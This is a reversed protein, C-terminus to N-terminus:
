SVHTADGKTSWLCLLTNVSVVPFSGFPTTPSYPYLALLPHSALLYAFRISETGILKSSRRCDPYKTMAVPNRMLPLVPRNTPTLNHKVFSPVSIAM